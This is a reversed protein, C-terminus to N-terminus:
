QKIKLLRRFLEDDFANDRIGDFFHVVNGNELLMVGPVDHEIFFEEAFDELPLVKHSGSLGTYNYFEPILNAAEDAFIIKTDPLNEIAGLKKGVEKCHDCDPSFFCLVKLDSGLDEFHNSYPTNVGELNIHKSGTTLPSILLITITVLSFLVYSKYLSLNMYVDKPSRKIGKSLYRILLFLAVNKLISSTTSMSILSGFCGCDSKNGNIILDYTLYITFFVLLYKSLKVALKFSEKRLFMIGISLELIVLGRSIYPALHENIGSSILIKSEFLDLGLSPNPLMKGVGSLIFLLGIFVKTFDIITIGYKFWIRKIMVKMKKQIRKSNFTHLAIFSM